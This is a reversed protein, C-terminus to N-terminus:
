SDIHEMAIYYLKRKEREIDYFLRLLRKVNM